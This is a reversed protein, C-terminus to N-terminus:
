CYKRYAETFAEFLDPIRVVGEVKDAEVVPIARVILNKETLIKYAKILDDGMTLIPTKVMYDEVLRFNCQKLGKEMADTWGDGGLVSHWWSFEPKFADLINRMSIVGLYKMNRDVVVLSRRRRGAPGPEDMALMAEGLTAEPGITKFDRSVFDWVHVSLPM